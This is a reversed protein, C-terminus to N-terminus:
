PSSSPFLSLSLSRFLFNLQNPKRFCAAKPTQHKRALTRTHSHTRVHRHTTKRGARQFPPWAGVPNYFPESAGRCLLSSHLRPPLLALSSPLSLPLISTLPLRASCCATPPASCSHCKSCTYIATQTSSPWVPTQLQLPEAPPGTWQQGCRTCGPESRPGLPESWVGRVM